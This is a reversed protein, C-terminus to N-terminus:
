RGVARAEAKAADDDLLAEAAKDTTHVLGRTVLLVLMTEVTKLPYRPELGEEADMMVHLIRRENGTLRM